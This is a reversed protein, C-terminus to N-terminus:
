VMMILLIVFGIVFAIPLLVAQWDGAQAKPSNKLMHKARPWLFLIMAGLLIVWIIKTWDM